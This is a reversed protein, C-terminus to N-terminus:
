YRNLIRYALLNAQKRLKKKGKTDIRATLAEPKQRSTKNNLGSSYAEDAYSKLHKELNRKATVFAKAKTAM